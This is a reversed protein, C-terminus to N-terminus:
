TVKFLAPLGLFGVRTGELHFYNQSKSAKDALHKATLLLLFTLLSYHLSARENLEPTLCCM